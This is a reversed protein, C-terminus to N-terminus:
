CKYPLSKLKFEYIGNSRKWMKGYEPYKRQLERAAKEHVEKRDKTMAAIGGDPNYFKTKITVKDFRLVGCDKKYHLISNEFDEKEPLSTILDRSHRIIQGYFTGLIFRLGYSKIPRPEMFFINRVPYVGWLYINTKLCEKFAKKIFSDLNKIDVLKKNKLEEVKEVDDDCFLVKTGEKFYKNIFKRQNNIGIVGVVIKNYSNIPLVNEYEKKENKNAVFIFIKSSAIKHKLLTLLSKNYLQNYRKYTPIAVVYSLESLEAKRTHTTVGKSRKNYKKKTQRM